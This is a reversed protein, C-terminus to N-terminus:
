IFIFFLFIHLKFFKRQVLYLTILINMINNSRIQLLIQKQATQLNNLSANKAEIFFVAIQFFIPPILVFHFPFNNERREPQTVAQQLLIYLFLNSHSERFNGRFPSESRSQRFFLPGNKCFFLTLSKKTDQQIIKFM